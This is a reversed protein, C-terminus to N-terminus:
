EVAEKRGDAYERYKWAAEGQRWITVLRYEKEYIFSGGSVIDFAFLHFEPEEPKWGIREYIVQRYLAREDLDAIEIARGHLKLEGGTGLRDKVLSHVTCRPDRQLDLAKYSQWMMGLYLRGNAIDPEVPSIRPSGDRRITGVLVVQDREVIKRGLQALEPAAEEFAAWDM